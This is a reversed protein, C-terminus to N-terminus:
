DSPVGVVTGETIRDGTIQVRGGAFMGTTVAVYHSTSGTVVQVGYGGEALAVLAQVPVSLVNEATASVLSVDVPAGDLSGLARQDSVSITVDITSQGSQGNANDGATAVTGVSTVTGAVSRGDPLTVTASVGRHVLSQLSVDLAVSVARVTGTADLVPGRAQDGLAARLSAVRIAAPAVVVDGPNVVGTKTAGLDDQLSRVASATASTYTGDVTFGGYGLAKLNAEVEHVDAGEVGPSLPRYLPLGGYILAVKVQDVAYVTGGRAITVGAAPLWTITGGHASITRAAGYGLTGNVQETQTLTSRTVTTTAPAARVTAGTTPDQGGFGVAATVGAAVLLVAAAAIIVTRKM